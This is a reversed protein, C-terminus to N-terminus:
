AEGHEALVDAHLGLMDSPNAAIHARDKLSDLDRNLEYLRMGGFAVVALLGVVAWGTWSESVTTTPATTTTM